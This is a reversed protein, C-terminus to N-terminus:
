SYRLYVMLLSVPMYNTINTKDTKKYLPKIVAIKPHDTLFGM